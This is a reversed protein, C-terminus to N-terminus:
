DLRGTRWWAGGPVSLHHVSCVRIPWLRASNMVGIVVQPVPTRLLLVPIPAAAGATASTQTQAFLAEDAAGAVGGDGSARAGDSAAPGGSSKTLGLM